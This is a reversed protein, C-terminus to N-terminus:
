KTDYPAVIKFGASRLTVLQEAELVEEVIFPYSGSEFNDINLFSINLNLQAGKQPNNVPAFWVRRKGLHRMDTSASLWIMKGPRYAYLTTPFYTRLTPTTTTYFGVENSVNNTAKVVVKLEVNPKDDKTKFVIKAEGEHKATLELVGSGSIWRADIASEPNIVEYEADDGGGRVVIDKRVEGPQLTIEKDSLNVQPREIRVKLTKRKDHSRLSVLTEGYNLGRLKLYNGEIRAELLKPNEATATFKGNGGSLKFELTNNKDLVVDEISKGEGVTIDPIQVTPEDTKCSSLGIIVSAIILLIRQM